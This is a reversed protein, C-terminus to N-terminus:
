KGGMLLAFGFIGAAALVMWTTASTGTAPTAPLITGTPSSATTPTITMSDQLVPGIPYEGGFAPNTAADVAPTTGGSAATFADTFDDGLGRMRAYAGLGAFFGSLGYASTLAPGMAAWYQALTMNQSLDLSPLNPVAEGSPLALGLYTNFRYGSSTASMGSGTFNPDTAIGSQMNALVSSLSSSSQSPPAATPVPATVVPGDTTVTTSVPTVTSVPAVAAPAVVAPVFLWEYLFYGGVAVAGLTVINGMSSGPNRRRKM